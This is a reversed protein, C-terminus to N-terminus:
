GEATAEATAEATPISDFDSPEETGIEPQIEPAETTEVEILPQNEIINIITRIASANVLYVTRPGELTISSVAPEPTAEAEATAPATPEPEVEVTAELTEVSTEVEPREVDQAVSTAEATAEGSAAQDTAAETEEATAEAAETAAAVNTAQIIAEYTAALTQREDEDEEERMATALAQLTPNQPIGESDPLDATTLSTDVDLRELDPQMLDLDPRTSADGIQEVVAYYRTGSPNENGIYMVHVANNEGVVFTVYLPTELGYQALDDAEFADEAQLNLLTSIVNNVRTQDVELQTTPEAAAPEDTAQADDDTLTQEREPPRPNAVEWEEENFRTLVTREGSRNDRVEVRQATAADVGSFVRVPAAETVDTATGGQNGPATAQSFTLALVAVIVVLSIALLLVTGRNMRM